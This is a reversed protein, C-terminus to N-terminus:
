VGNKKKESELKNLYELVKETKKELEKLVKQQEETKKNDM